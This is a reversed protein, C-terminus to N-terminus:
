INRLIAERILNRIKSESLRAYDPTDLMGMKELYDAIIVNVPRHDTWGRNPGSPWGGHSTEKDLMLDKKLKNKKNSM